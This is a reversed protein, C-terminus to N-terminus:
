SRRGPVARHLCEAAQARRARRRKGPAPRPAPHHIRRGGPPGRYRRRAVPRAPTRRHGQAAPRRHSPRPQRQHAQLPGPRHVARRRSPERRPGRRPRSQAPERVAPSQAPRHASRPPGPLRAPGPRVQPHLYRRLRRRLSHDRGASQTGRQHDAMRPVARRDQTPELDRGALARRTGAPEVHRPLLQLRTTRLLAPQALTGAGGARQLRHDRQLRPQGRHHTPPYRHDDRRRRHKRLRHRGAAAEGAHAPARHYRPRHDARLGRWRHQDPPRVDRVPPHWRQPGTCPRHLGPDPHPPTGALDPAQPGRHRGVPRTRAHLPLHGRRPPLRHSPHLRRERRDAHRRRPPQDASRRPLCPLRQRVEGRLDAATGPDGGPPHHRPDGGGAGPDPRPGRAPRQAARQLYQWQPAAPAGRPQDPQRPRAKGPGAPGPRPTGLHGTRHRDQRHRRRRRHRDAARLHQEGRPLPRRRRQGTGGHGPLPPVGFRVETRVPAHGARHAQGRHHRDDSRAPAPGPRAHDPHGFRSDLSGPRRRRADPLRLQPRTRGPKREHLLPHRVRRGHPAPDAALLGAAAM